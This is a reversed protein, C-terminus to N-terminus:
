RPVRLMRYPGLLSCMTMMVESTPETSVPIRNEYWWGSLFMVALKLQSPVKDATDGYGAPYEIQICDPTRSTQPWSAGPVLTIKDYGESYNAPDFTQSVGDPDNYTVVTPNPPSGADVQVPRRCLEISDTTTFGWWWFPPANYANSLQYMSLMNRPDQTGPFYDYTEVIRETILARATMQEVQDSAAEIFSPILAYDATVNPPSATDFQLPLDFRSFAALEEPTVVPNARPVLIKQYL